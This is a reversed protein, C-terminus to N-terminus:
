ARLGVRYARHSHTHSTGTRADWLRVTELRSGGAITNGDPSFALSNVWGTNGILLTTLTGTHADWVTDYNRILTHILTGAHADWLRVTKDASASAIKNGDPSFAVSFVESTHGTLTRRLTGTHVDWLRVTKDQGGSAIKNGDPSFAVSRVWGTHGILLDVEGNRDSGAGPSNGVGSRRDQHLRPFNGAQFTTTDYLWIGIGGSVALHTGDPAYAIQFINGKGLRTKAGQPLNFQTYDQAFTSLSFLTFLMVLTATTKM